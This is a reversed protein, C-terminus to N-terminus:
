PWGATADAAGGVSREHAHGRRQEAAEVVDLAFGHQVRLPRHQDDGPGAAALGPGEGVPDGVQHPLAAHRGACIRAIVNVFLAARSIRSRTSCSTPEPAAPPIHIRVNWEIHARISRRSCEAGRRGRSTRSRHRPRCRAASRPCRARVQVDVRLPEWRLRHGGRDAVRLSWRSRRRRTRALQTWSRRPSRDGVDVRTRSACSPPRAREVEVVDDDLRHPQEAVMGLYEASGPATGTGTPRRTGPCSGRGTRAPSCARRWAGSGRRRPRRPGPRTSTARRRGDLVQEVELM